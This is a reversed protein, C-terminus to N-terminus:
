SSIGPPNASLRRTTTVSRTRQSQVPRICYGFLPTRMATGPMLASRSSSLTSCRELSTVYLLSIVSM